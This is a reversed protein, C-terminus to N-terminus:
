GAWEPYRSRCNSGLVLQMWACVRCIDLMFSVKNRCCAPDTQASINQKRATHIRESDTSKRMTTCQHAGTTHERVGAHANCTDPWFFSPSRGSWRAAVPHQGGHREKGQQPQQDVQQAARHGALGDPDAHRAGHAVALAVEAPGWGQRFCGAKMKPNITVTIRVPRGM